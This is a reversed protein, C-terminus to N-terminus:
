AANEYVKRTNYIIVALVHLHLAHFIIENEAVFAIVKRMARM